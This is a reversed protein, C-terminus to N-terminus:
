IWSLVLCMFLVAQAEHHRWWISVNETNSAMQASFEGTEPSNGACLGTVRLKSTKKLRCRFLRNLLCDHPQHNSVVDRGNPHWQLTTTNWQLKTSISKGGGGNGVVVWEGVGGGLFYFYVFDHVDRVRKSVNSSKIGLISLHNCGNTYIYIYIYSFYKCNGDWYPPINCIYRYM